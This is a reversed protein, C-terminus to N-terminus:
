TQLRGVIYGFWCCATFLVFLFAAFFTAQKKSM